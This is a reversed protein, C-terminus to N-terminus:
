GASVLGTFFTLTGAQLAALSSALSAIHGAVNAIRGAGM